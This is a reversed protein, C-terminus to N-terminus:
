FCVVFIFCHYLSLALSFLCFIEIIEEVPNGTFYVNWMFCSIFLYCGVQYKLTEQEQQNRIPIFGYIKYLVM